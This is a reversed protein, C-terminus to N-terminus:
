FFKRTFWVLSGYVWIFFIGSFRLVLRTMHAALTSFPEPVLM